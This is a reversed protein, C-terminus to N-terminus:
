NGTRENVTSDFSGDKLVTVIGCGATVNSVSRVLSGDARRTLSYGRDLVKLPNLLILQRESARVQQKLRRCESSASSRMREDNRLIRNRLELLRKERVSKLRDAYQETLQRAKVAAQQVAHLLRMEYSDVSQAYRALAQEPRNLVVSSALRKLQQALLRRRQMLARLMDDACAQLQREFERKPQVVLEAAASPTPARLDAVFDSLAFDVEHGVASIVPIESDSIARAVNEENFAWLDELSGGGRGVIIVDVPRHSGAGCASNLWKVAKAISESAGAGQVKVPTLLIEINPFRRHLVNLMDHIVAGTPSTVVGIRQPLLPLKKKRSEEFLGEKLLKKKLAEYREMLVGVGANQIRRVILQYQGRREFVSIQGSARVRQGDKLCFSDALKKREGAFLVASLQATEDKLVFYTHGSSYRKINSIEGEVFITGFRDSLAKKIKRTLETVTLIQKSSTM